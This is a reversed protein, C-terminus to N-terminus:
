ATFQETPAARLRVNNKWLELQRTGDKKIFLIGPGDKQGDTWRGNYIDGNQLYERGNGHKLGEKWSGWYLMTRGDQAYEAYPGRGHPLGDKLLGEYRRYGSGSHYLRGLPLGTSGDVPPREAWGDSGKQIALREQEKEEMRAQAAMKEFSPQVPWDPLNKNLDGFRLTGIPRYHKAVSKPFFWYLHQRGPLGEKTIINHQMSSYYGPDTTHSRMQWAVRDPYQRVVTPLRSAKSKRTSPTFPVRLMGMAEHYSHNISYNQIIVNKGAEAHQLITEIILEALTRGLSSGSLKCRNTIRPIISKAGKDGDFRFIEQRVDVHFVNNDPSEAEKQSIKFIYIPEGNCLVVYCRSTEDDNDDDKEEKGSQVCRMRSALLKKKPVGSADAEKSVYEGLMYDYLSKDHMDFGAQRAARADNVAELAFYHEMKTLAFIQLQRSRSTVRARNRARNRKSQERERYRQRRSDHLTRKSLGKVSERQRLAGGSVLMGIALATLVPTAM